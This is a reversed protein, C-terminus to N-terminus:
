FECSPKTSFISSPTTCYNFRRFLFSGVIGTTESGGSVMDIESESLLEDNQDAMEKFYEKMEEFTIEYGADRAFDILKDSTVAEGERKANEIVKGFKAQLVSDKAVKEFLEKTKSM